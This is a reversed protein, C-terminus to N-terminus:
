KFNGARPSSSTSSLTTPTTTWVFCCILITVCVTLTASTQTGAIFHSCKFYNFTRCHSIKKMNRKSIWFINIHFHEVKIYLGWASGPLRFNRVQHKESVRYVSYSAMWASLIEIVRSSVTRLCSWIKKM